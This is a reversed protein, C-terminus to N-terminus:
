RLACPISLDMVDVVMDNISTLTGVAVTHSAHQNSAHKIRRRVVSTSYYCYKREDGLEDETM